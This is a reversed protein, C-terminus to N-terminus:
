KTTNKISEIRKMFSKRIVIDSSFFGDTHYPRLSRKAEVLEEETFDEVTLGYPELRKNIRKISKEDITM